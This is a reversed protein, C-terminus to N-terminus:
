KARTQTPKRGPRATSIVVVRELSCVPGPDADVRGLGGDTARERRDRAGRGATEAPAPEAAALGARARRVEQEAM